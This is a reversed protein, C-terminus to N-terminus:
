GMGCEGSERRWGSTKGAKGPQEGAEEVAPVECMHNQQRTHENELNRGKM